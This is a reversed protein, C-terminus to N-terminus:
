AQKAEAPRHLSRLFEYMEQWEKNRYSGYAYIRLEGRHNHKNADIYAQCGAETFCATVFEWHDKYGTRTLCDPESHYDDWYKQAAELEEGEVEVCDNCSDIWVVDDTYAPDYGYERKKEQVAFLPYATARNDQVCTQEAIGLIEPPVAFSNAIDDYLQRLFPLLKSEPMTGTEIKPGHFSGGADRWRQRLEDDSLRDNM